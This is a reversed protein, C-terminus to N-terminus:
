WGIYLRSRNGLRKKIFRATIISGVDDAVTTITPAAAATTYVKFNASDAVAATALTANNGVADRLTGGNLTLANIPLSIGNADTQNALITYSFTLANTGSGGAYNAQVTNGGIVLAMQPTGTVTTAESMNATVTIVDGANLTGGQAGTASLALSSVTPAAPPRM